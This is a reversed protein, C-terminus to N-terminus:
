SAVNDRVLRQSRLSQPFSGIYHLRLAAPFCIPNRPPVRWGIGSSVAAPIVALNHRFTYFQTSNDPMLILITKSKLTANTDLPKFTVARVGKLAQLPNLPFFYYFYNHVCGSQLASRGRRAPFQTQNQIRAHPKGSRCSPQGTACSHFNPKTRM